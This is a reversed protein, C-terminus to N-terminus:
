NGAHRLIYKKLTGCGAQREKRVHKLNTVSLELPNKSNIHKKLQNMGRKLALCKLFFLLM